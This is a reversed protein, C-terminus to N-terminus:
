AEEEDEKINNAIKILRNFQHNIGSKTITNSLLKTLNELSEEPNALRVLCLERLNQPLSEFGITREIKTIASIQRLSANVTKTINANLCNNQRNINNRVERVTMENQLALLGKYAGVVALLDSVMEAEKIYLVYLNKRRSKKNAINLSFLLSSFEDAYSEDSFDFEWHYGSFTRPKSQNLSLVINSTSCSVFVGRVFTKKCCDDSILSQNINHNIIYSNDQSNSVIGTDKLLKNTINKPFTIVYREQKNITKEDDVSLSASVNYLTNLCFNVQLLLDKLDTKVTIYIDQGSKNLEGASHIVSSLFARCCCEKKIEVGLVELKVDRAFSM